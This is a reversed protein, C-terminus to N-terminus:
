PTRKFISVKTLITKKKMEGTTGASTEWKIGAVKGASYHEVIPSGNQKVYKKLKTFFTTGGPRGEKIWVERLWSALEQEKPATNVKTSAPETATHSGAGGSRIAETQPIAQYPSAIVLIKDKPQGEDMVFFCNDATYRSGIDGLGGMKLTKGLNELRSFESDPHNTPRLTSVNLPLSGTHNFTIEDSENLSFVGNAGYSPVIVSAGEEGWAFWSGFGKFFVDVM